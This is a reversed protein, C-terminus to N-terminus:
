KYRTFCRFPEHSSSPFTLMRPFVCAIVVKLVYLSCFTFYKLFPVLNFNLTWNSQIFVVLYLICRFDKFYWNNHIRYHNKDRFCIFVFINQVSLVTRFNNQVM